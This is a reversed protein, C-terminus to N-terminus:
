FLGSVLNATFTGISMRTFYKRHVLRDAMTLLLLYVCMVTKRVQLSWCSGELHGEATQVECRTAAGHFHAQLLLM